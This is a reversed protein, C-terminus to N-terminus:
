RPTSSYSWLDGDRQILVKEVPYVAQNGLPPERTAATRDL